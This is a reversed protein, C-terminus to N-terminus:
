DRVLELFGHGEVQTGDIGTAVYKYFYTGDKAEAGNPSRGDWGVFSGLQTINQNQSYMVNGWRNLIVLELQVTNITKLTFFPNNADGNPTFVNPAEVEPQPYQCSEDDVQASPNYNVANPDMCGCISISINVYSTDSCDPEAFAVLMVTAAGYYVQTQSSTNGVNATNGNGFDWYYNNTNQSSNTFTVTLPQCGSSPSASFQSIPPEEVEVFISDMASCVDDEVTFYYWGSPINQLVTGDVSYIGPITDPGTWNYYPQGVAATVGAATGSVAGSPFCANSPYQIMTDIVLTQNLLVIATDSVEFGCQDTATFGFYYYGNAGDVPVQLPMDTEGSDWVIDYPPFGGTVSGWITVSPDQCFITTDTAMTVFDPELLLWIVGEAFITDGCPTVTQANVILSFPASSPGGNTPTITLIVTDQGPYFVVSDGPALNNYDTGEIADGSTQFYVVLTDDTQNAPRTFYIIGETCNAVLTSDSVSAGAQIDINVVDSTFSNAELFVGSDLGTDLDNAIALKIHYVEGCILDSNASLTVTGGNFNPLGGTANFIPNYSTTFYVSNAQWNPDQAACTAANGGGTPSGGNVTNIAVPINGGPVTAINIAGNSFPGAIGPGSIFFGFVDNFNSCTYSTYEVSAFIYNFSLTDGTPIFDFEIVCGNTASGGTLVNLDPDGLTGVGQTTMVVGAGIPFASAGSNFEMVNPQVINANGALTPNYQINFANIGAGILIDQVAEVPTITGNPNLNLQASSTTITFFSLLISLFKSFSNKM